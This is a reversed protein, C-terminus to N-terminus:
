AWYPLYRAYKKSKSDSDAEKIAGAILAEKILRSAISYNKPEISFRERLSQNSMFDNSVWKLCAHQYVARIKDNKDMDRLQKYAYLIVKTHLGSSIFYPAPLQYVECQFVVKDIGSGKEECIKLRRMISALKENRSRYEDIFRITEILPEGPNSFEIRDNYIEILTSTGSVSFDQHIISNAVLERIALQPYMRVDKRLADGIVENRPLLDNIYKVLSPFGIAYGQSFEEDLITEIKNNGKYQVVRVIKRELSKFDHLNKAFLIGGLNTIAYGEDKKVILGDIILREIVGDQSTPYPLEMMDFYSQTDLLKITDAASCGELAISTEFNYKVNNWIKREKNPFDSLRRTISGVRIYPVKKYDVPENEAAPIEFLAIAKGDCEFEYIRFDIRPTLNQILWNELENNGVMKQSPRFTTGIIDHTDNDVGFVLYGYAKNDICASNAIASIREGIEDEGHFNHKFEVWENEKPLAVLRKLLICLKHEM